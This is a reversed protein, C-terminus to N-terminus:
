SRSSSRATGPGAGRGTRSIPPRPREIYGRETTRSQEVVSALRPVQFWPRAEVVSPRAGDLCVVHGPWGQAIREIPLVRERRTSWTRTPPTRRGLLGALGPLRQGESTSVATVEREGALQSMAELTRVCSVGPFVVKTNFLGVLGEGAQGWREVAQSLDQLCALTVVGQSGGESVLTPLDHLPAINAVEDLLLLLPPRGHATGLEDAAAARYTAARADRLLGGVIPAAQRQEDSPSCIYLTDGSRVFEDFDITRGATSELAASSRYAALVSSATSWIGSQEREDTALLGELSALPIERDCTTLITKLDGGKRRDVISLLQSMPMGSLAGAHFAAALLAQARELWHQSDGHTAGPRATRVMTQAMLNAGDFDSSSTLPSWSVREVGARDPTHGGPDFLMCRGVRSRAPATTLVVDPKTSTTIVPGCAALVNPVVLASTKGSRPPGIALLCQEPEVFQPRPGPGSRSRRAGDYPFGLRLGYGYHATEARLSDLPDM